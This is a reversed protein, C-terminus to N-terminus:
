SEKSPLNKIKGYCKACYFNDNEIFYTKERCFVCYGYETDDFLVVEDWKQFRQNLIDCKLVFNFYARDYNYKECIKDILQDVKRKVELLFKEEEPTTKM